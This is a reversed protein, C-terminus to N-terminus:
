SGGLYSLAQPLMRRWFDDDHQGHPFSAVAPKAQDALQRASPYFPDERGCWIGLNAPAPHRLPEENAWQQENAFAHV